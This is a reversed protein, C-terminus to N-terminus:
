ERHFLFSTLMEQGFPVYSLAYWTLCGYQVLTTLLCLFASQFILATFVSLLVSSVYMASAMRRQEDMMYELQASPGKLMFTSALSLLTGFSSLATYKWYNGMGLAFWSMISSFFAVSSFLFYGQIRQPLTLCQFLKGGGADRDMETGNM